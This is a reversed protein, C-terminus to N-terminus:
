IVHVDPNKGHVVVKGDVTTTNVGNNHWRAYFQARRKANRVSLYDAGVEDEQSVAAAKRRLVDGYVGKSM